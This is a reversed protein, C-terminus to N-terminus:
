RGAGSSSAPEVACPSAPLDQARTGWGQPQPADTLDFRLRGGQRLREWDLWVAAHDRGDLSVDRIYRPKGDGAQPAEIRLTRGNGMDVDVRSFRPAHLVFQGTFRM